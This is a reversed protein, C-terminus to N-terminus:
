PRSGYARSGRFLTLGYLLRIIKFLKERDVPTNLTVLLDTLRNITKM